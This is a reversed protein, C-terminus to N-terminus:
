PQHFAKGAEYLAIRSSLADALTKKEQQTALELARRATALAQSVAGGRRLRRGLYRAGGASSAAPSNDAQRALEVAEAGNRLSAEPCTALLWALRRRAEADAANRDVARRYHTAARQFRELATLPAHPHTLGVVYRPELKRVELFQVMADDDLGWDSLAIGLHHHAMSNGSTCDLTHTWLTESDQWFTTQRWACATLVALALVAVGRRM